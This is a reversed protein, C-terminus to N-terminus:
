GTPFNINTNKYSIKCLSYLFASLQFSPNQCSTSRVYLLDLRCLSICILSSHFSSLSTSVICCDWMTNLSLVLFFAQMSILFILWNIPAKKLRMLKGEIYIIYLHHNKYRQPQIQIPGTFQSIESSALILNVCHNNNNNEFWYFISM